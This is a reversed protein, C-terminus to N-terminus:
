YLWYGSIQVGAETDKGCSAMAVTVWCKDTKFSWATAMKGNAIRADEPSTVERLNNKDAAYASVQVLKGDIAVTKCYDFIRQNYAKITEADMYDDFKEKTIAYAYVPKELDVKGDEFVKGGLNPRMQAVDLNFQAFAAEISNDVVEEAPAQETEESEANAPKSGCAVFMAMSALCTLALFFKKM